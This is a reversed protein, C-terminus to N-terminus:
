TLGPYLLPDSMDPWLRQFRALSRFIDPRVLSKPPLISKSSKCKML